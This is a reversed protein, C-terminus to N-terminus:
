QDFGNLESDMADILNQRQEESSSWPGKSKIEQVAERTRKGFYIASLSASAAWEANLTYIERGIEEVHTM